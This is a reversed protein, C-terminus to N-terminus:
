RKVGILRQLSESTQNVDRRFFVIEQFKSHPQSLIMGGLFVQYYLNGVTTVHSYADGLRPACRSWLKFIPSDLIPYSDGWAARYGNQAIPSAQELLDSKSLSNINLRNSRENVDQAYCISQETLETGFVYSTYGAVFALASKMYRNLPRNNDGEVLAVVYDKMPEITQYTEDAYNWKVSDRVSVLQNIVGKHDILFHVSPLAESNARFFALSNSHPMGSYLLLIKSRSSYGPISIRTSSPIAFPFWFRKETGLLLNNDPTSM